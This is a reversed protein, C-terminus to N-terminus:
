ARSQRYAAALAGLEVAFPNTAGTAYLEEIFAIVRSDDQIILVGAGPGSTVLVDEIISPVNVLGIDESGVDQFIFVGQRLVDSELVPSAGSSPVVNYVIEYQTFVADTMASLAAVISTAASEIASVTAMSGITLRTEATSGSGDLWTVRLQPLQQMM